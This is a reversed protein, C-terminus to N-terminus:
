DLNNKAFWDELIIRLLESQSINRKKSEISLITKHKKEALFNFKELKQDHPLFLTSKLQIKLDKFNEYFIFKVNSYKTGKLFIYSSNIELDKRLLIIIQKRQQLAYSIQQGVGTSSVSTEAIFIDSDRIAKLSRQHIIEPKNIVLSDFWRYTINLSCDHEIISIM